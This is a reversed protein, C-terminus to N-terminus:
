SDLNSPHFLDFAPRNFYALSRGIDSDVRPQTIVRRRLEHGDVIRDIVRGIQTTKEQQVILSWRQTMTPALGPELDAHLSTEVNASQNSGAVGKNRRYEHRTDSQLRTRQACRAQSRRCRRTLFDTAGMRIKLTGFPHERRAAVAYPKAIRIWGSSRPKSSTSMSGDRSPPM